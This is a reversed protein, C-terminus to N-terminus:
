TVRKAIIFENVFILIVFLVAFLLNLSGWLLLEPVLIVELLNMSLVLVIQTIANFKPKNGSLIWFGMLVEAFGIGLTLQEAYKFGLIKAVIFEHRPILGLIKCYFGNVFWVIAFSVRLMQYILRM